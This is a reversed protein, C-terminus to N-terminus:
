FSRVRRVEDTICRIELSVGFLRNKLETFSVPATNRYAVDGWSKIKEKPAVVSASNWSPVTTDQHAALTLINWSSILKQGLRYDRIGASSFFFFFFPFGVLFLSDSQLSPKARILAREARGSSPSGDESGWFWMSFNVTVQLELDLSWRGRRSEMPVQM